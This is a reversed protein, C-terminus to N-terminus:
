QNLDVPHPSIPKIDIVTPTIPLSPNLVVRTVSISSKVIEWGLWGWYRVFRVSSRLSFLENDAYGMRTVLWFVLVCSLAGLSLQLAKYYGSWVLWVATLVFALSALRKM